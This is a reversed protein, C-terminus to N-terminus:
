NAELGYDGSLFCLGLAFAGRQIEEVEQVGAQTTNAEEMM